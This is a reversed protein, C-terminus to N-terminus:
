QNTLTFLVDNSIGTSNELYFWLQQDGVPGSSSSCEACTGPPPYEDPGDATPDTSVDGVVTFKITKGDTSLINNEQSYGTYLINGTPSFGRGYITILTGPPGTSPDIKDIFLSSSNPPAPPLALGSLNGLNGATNQNNDLGAAPPATASLPVNNASVAPTPTLLQVTNTQTMQAILQALEASIIKLQEAIYSILSQRAEATLHPSIKQVSITGEARTVPVFVTLFCVSIALTACIKGAKKHM